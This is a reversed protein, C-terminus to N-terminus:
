AAPALLPSGGAGGAMASRTGYMTMLKASAAQVRDQIAVQQQQDNQAQLIALGPDPQPAVYQPVDNTM